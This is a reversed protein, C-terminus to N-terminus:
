DKAVLENVLMSIDVDEQFKEVYFDEEQTELPNKKAMDKVKKIAANVQKTAIGNAKADAKIEKKSDNIEKVELELRLIEKVYDMTLQEEEADRTDIFDNVMENESM